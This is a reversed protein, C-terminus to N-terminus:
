QALPGFPFTGFDKFWTIGKVQNNKTPNLRLKCSKSYKSLLVKANIWAIQNLNSANVVVFWDIDKDTYSYSYGPGSKTVYLTIKGDDPTYCKVQLKQLGEETRVVLDAKTNDGVSTFVELGKELCQKIVVIEGLTGLDKRHM